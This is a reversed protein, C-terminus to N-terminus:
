IKMLTSELMEQPLPLVCFDKNSICMFFDAIGLYLHLYERFNNLLNKGFVDDAVRCVMSVPVMDLSAAAVAQNAGKGGCNAEFTDGMVTEGMKPITATYSTLDQNASGVVVVQKENSSSMTTTATWSSRSSLKPYIIPRFASLNEAFFLLAIIVTSFALRSFRLAQQQQKRSSPKMSERIKLEQKAFLGDM